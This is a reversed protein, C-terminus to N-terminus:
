SFSPNDVFKNRNGARLLIVGMLVCVSGTIQIGSLQESLLFYAWVATLAPELTAILNAVTAPLFNLSM